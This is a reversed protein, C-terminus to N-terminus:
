SGSYDEYVRTVAIGTAFYLGNVSIVWQQIVIVSYSSQRTDLGHFYQFANTCPSLSSENRYEHSYIYKWKM